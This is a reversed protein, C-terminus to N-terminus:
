ALRFGGNGKYYNRGVLVCLAFGIMIAATKTPEPVPTYNYILVLTGSGTAGGSFSGSVFNATSDASAVATGTAGFASPRVNVTITTSGNGVYGATTTTTQNMTSPSSPVGSYLYTPSSAGVAIETAVNDDTDTANLNVNVGGSSTVQLRGTLNIYLDEPGNTDGGPLGVNSNNTGTASGSLAVNELIVEVSTLTGLASNFSLFNFPVTSSSGGLGSFSMTQTVTQGFAQSGTLVLVLALVQGIRSKASSANM